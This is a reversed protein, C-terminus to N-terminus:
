DHISSCVPNVARGSPSRLGESSGELWMQRYVLPVSIDDDNNICV